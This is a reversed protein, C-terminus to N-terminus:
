TAAACSPSWTDTPSALANGESAHDTLAQQRTHPRARPTSPRTYRRPRTAQPPRQASLRGYADLLQEAPLARLAKATDTGAPIDLLRLYADTNETAQHPDAPGPRLPRQAAAGPHHVLEDLPRPRADPLTSRRLVARRRHRHPRRRRLLRANDKVRRLVAAQDQPGLHATGVQPLYLYGLPGVDSNATVVVIDGLAALRAGDNTGAAPAAPSAAGTGGCWSRAPWM